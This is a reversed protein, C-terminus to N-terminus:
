MRKAFWNVIKETPWQDIASVRGVAIARVAIARVAVDLGVAFPTITMRLSTEPDGGSNPVSKM